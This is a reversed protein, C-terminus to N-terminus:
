IMRFSLCWLWPNADWSGKGNIKEWLSAYSGKPGLWRGIREDDKLDLYNACHMTGKDYDIGEAICDEDSIENLRQIRVDTTELTIRSAWRPMYISPTIKSCFASDTSCDFYEQIGDTACYGIQYGEGTKYNLKGEFGDALLPQFSERVWLRDGPVGYRCVPSKGIHSRIFNNRTGEEGGSIAKGFARGKWVFGLSESLEPHPKIIRRTQTKRNELLARVM